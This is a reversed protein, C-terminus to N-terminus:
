DFQAFELANGDPDRTFVAPRGSKSATYSVGARELVDKLRNVDKIKVCTHRDRGGHSPRGSIPDPNPLEMLHIMGSGVWLWAGRYPLKDDPRENNVQLGLVGCYFDISRELNQCLLGAHHLNVYEAALGEQTLSANHNLVPTSGCTLASYAASGYLSLIGKQKSCWSRPNASYERLKLISISTFASYKLKYSPCFVRCNYHGGAGAWCVNAGLLAAM